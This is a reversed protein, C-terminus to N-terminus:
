IGTGALQAVADSLAELVQNKVALDLEAKAIPISLFILLGITITTFKKLARLQQQM